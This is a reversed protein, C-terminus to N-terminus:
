VKIFYKWLIMFISIANFTAHLGIPAWLSNQREYTFGLFCSLVFLASLLEWNSLGQEFSFHLLSFFVSTFFIAKVKGIIQVLWTQLFGRFLIEEAIPVIFVIVVASCWFLLPKDFLNKLYKVPVQEIAHTSDPFFFLMLLAFGQGILVVSPYSLFWTLVGILFSKIRENRKEGRSWILNWYKEGLLLTFVLVVLTAFLMALINLWGKISAGLTSNIQDVLIAKKVFSGIGYLLPSLSIEVFFYLGFAASVISLSLHPSLKKSSWWFYGSRWAITFTILTIIGVIGMLQLREHFDVSM